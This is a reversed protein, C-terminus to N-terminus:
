LEAIVGSERLRKLMSSAWPSKEYADRVLGGVADALRICADNEDKRVGRVRRTHIHLDRLAKTFATAEKRNLGDVYVTVTYTDKAKKLIAKATAFATLGLYEKSDKFRDFFISHRLGSLRTIAEIYAQRFLPRAKHWKINKKRTQTEIAELESRLTEREEEVLLISVLFFLGNTDQGSEDVYAYLKKRKGLDELKIVTTDHM